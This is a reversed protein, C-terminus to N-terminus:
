ARRVIQGQTPRKLRGAIPPTSVAAGATCTRPDGSAFTSFSRSHHGAAGQRETHMKIRQSRLEQRLGRRADVPTPAATVPRM